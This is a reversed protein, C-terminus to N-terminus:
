GPIPDHCSCKTKKSIYILVGSTQLESALTNTRKHM